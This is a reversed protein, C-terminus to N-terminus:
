TPITELKVSKQFSHYINHIMLGGLVACRKFVQIHNNDPNRGRIDRKPNYVSM